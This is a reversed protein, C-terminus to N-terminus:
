LTRECVYAKLESCDADAWQGGESPARKTLCFQNAAGDPEDDAWNSSATDVASQDPWVFGNANPNSGPDFGGTWIDTDILSSIFADREVTKISVLSANRVQCGLSAAQWSVRAAAVFILCVNTETLVGQSEACQEEPSPSAGASPQCCSAFGQECGQAACVGSVCDGGVLCARGVDCRACAPDSGGCDLDVETGNLVGDSCVPGQCCLAVGEACGAAGCIGTSCDGPQTCRAREPCAGCRGGCDADVEDQNHVGDSCTAMQCAGEQCVGSACDAASDCSAGADPMGPASDGMASSVPSDLPVQAGGGSGEMRPTAGPAAGGAGSTEGSASAGPMESGAGAVGLSEGTVREEQWVAEPLLCTSLLTTLSLAICRDIARSM